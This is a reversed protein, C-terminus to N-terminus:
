RFRADSVLDIPIIREDVSGDSRDRVITKLTYRGAGLTPPLEVIAPLFVDRLRRSSSLTYPTQAMRWVLTRGTESFVNIELSLDVKWGTGDPVNAFRDLEVYVVMRATEGALFRSSPLTDYDGYRRVEECLAVSAIRVPDRDWLSYVLGNLVDAVPGTEGSSAEGRLVEHALHRMASLSQRQGPSLRQYLDAAYGAMGAAAPSTLTPDDANFYSELFALTAARAFPDPADAADAWLRQLLAAALRDAPLEALAVPEAPKHPAADGTPPAEAPDDRRQASRPSEGAQDAAPQDTTAPERPAAALAQELALVTADMREELPSRRYEAQSPASSAEGPSDALLRSLSNDVPAAPPPRSPAAACGGLALIALFSIAGGQARM